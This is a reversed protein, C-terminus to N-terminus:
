PRWLRTIMERANELSFARIVLPHHQWTGFSASGGVIFIPIGAGIAIGTEVLAGRLEDGDEGYVIVAKSALVDHQDMLWFVHFDEATATDEYMAYDLWRCHLDIQGKWEGRLARFKAAYKIKSAIYVPIM